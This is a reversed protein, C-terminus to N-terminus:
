IKSRLRYYDTKSIESVSKKCIMAKELRLPILEWYYPFLQFLGGKRMLRLEWNKFSRELNLLDQSFMTKKKM